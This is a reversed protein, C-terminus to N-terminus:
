KKLFKLHNSYYNFLVEFITFVNAYRFKIVM